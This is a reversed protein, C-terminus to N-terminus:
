PPRAIRPSPPRSLGSERSLGREVAATMSGVADQVDRSRRRILRGLVLVGGAGLLVASLTIGFLLPDILVMLVVAACFMLVSSVIEFLGSTIVSRMLTTDSGVRSM